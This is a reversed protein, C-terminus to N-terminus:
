RFYNLLRRELIFAAAGIQTNVFKLKYMGGKNYRKIYRPILVMDSSFYSRSWSTLELTKILTHFSKLDLENVIRPTCIKYLNHMDLVRRVKNM